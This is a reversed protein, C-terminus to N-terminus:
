APILQHTKEELSQMLEDYPDAFKQIGEEILEDM